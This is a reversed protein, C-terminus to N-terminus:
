AVTRLLVAQSIVNLLPQWVASRLWYPALATTIKALAGALKVIGLGGAAQDLRLEQLQLKIQEASLYIGGAPVRPANEGEVSAMAGGGEVHLWVVANVVGGGGELRM